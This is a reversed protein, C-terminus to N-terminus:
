ARDCANAEADDVDILSVDSSNRGDRSIRIDRRTGGAANLDPSNLCLDLDAQQFHANSLYEKFTDSQTSPNNDGAPVASNDVSYYTHVAGGNPSHIILLAARLAADADDYSVSNRSTATQVTADWPASYTSLSQLDISPASNLLSNLAAGTAGSKKPDAAGTVNYSRTRLATNQMDILILKGYIAREERGGADSTSQPNNVQTYFTRFHETVTQVADNYRQRAVSSTTGAMLGIFLLGSIALVLSVEIITFGKRRSKKINAVFVPKKFRSM